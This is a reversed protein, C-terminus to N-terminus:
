LIDVPVFCPPFFSLFFYRLSLFFHTLSRLLSPLPSRVPSPDSSTPAWARLIGSMIEWWILWWQPIARITRPFATCWRASWTLAWMQRRSVLLFFLTSSSERCVRFSSSYLLALPFFSLLFALLLPLPTIFVTFFRCRM